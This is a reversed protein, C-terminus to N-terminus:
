AMSATLGPLVHRSQALRAGYKGLFEDVARIVENNNLSCNVFQSTNLVFFDDHETTVTPVLKSYHLVQLPQVRVARNIHASVIEEERLDPFMVALGQFFKLRITEDPQQLLPDDSLVYKPCYTLYLGATEDTSVVSSMGIVGTFPIRSDAINLTYYPSIPRRTVLVLCIVGLYEVKMEPTTVRLLDDGALRKLVDVPSTCIVKDFHERYEDWDIWLGGDPRAHIAKVTAAPRIEGGRSGILNELHAIVARYGGSVHGLHERRAATTRASFIRTIYTWIFVASVRRYQEGLKALLLPKWFQEYTRRGCMKTLWEEVPVAELPKWDRIRLCRLVSLALRVKGIWGVLPFSLMELTNSLSYFRGDVYLGTRTPNWRLRGGLGIEHLFTILHTDFPLIVHYFRDWYFPGYDHYTSLGGLQRDREFVTVQMNQASLRQALALGMIGGGIIGIRM